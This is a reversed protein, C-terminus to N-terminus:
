YELDNMAKVSLYLQNRCPDNKANTTFFLYLLDDKVIATPKYYYQRYGTHVESCHNNLLPKRITKFHKWDKSVSLMINDDKEACSVMFLKGDYEFLDFHWLDYRKPIPVFLMRKGIKKQFLKDCVLPNDFAISDKLKFDPHDLSTSEWIAIGKNKRHPEYQYWVAYFLYKGNHKMMIPCQTMDESKRDNCIFSQIDRLRGDKEIRGGFVIEELGKTRANPTECERWFVYLSDAEVFVNPDSNYGTDPSDVILRGKGWEKLSQSFYIMPNEVKNNWGYYPTQVMVYDGITTERVCPHLCDDRYKEFEPTTIDIAEGIPMQQQPYFRYSYLGVLLLVM